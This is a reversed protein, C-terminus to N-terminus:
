ILTVLQSTLNIKDLLHSLSVAEGRSDDISKISYIVSDENFNTKFLLKKPEINVDILQKHIHNEELYKNYCVLCLSFIYEVKLEKGNYDKLVQEIENAFEAIELKRLEIKNYLVPKYQKVYIFTLLVTPLVFNNKEFQTLILRTYAFLKEQERLSLQKTDIILSAYKKFYEHDRKLQDYKLRNEHRFFEDLNFYEYLYDVFEKVSPSPIQYEIDIFRRLYNASDISESGYFGKIANCLQEKDISLVFVIGPVSFFHKVCELVQVAYDPKCRDLEDIIFILPKGNCEEQIYKGLEIKFADLSQKKDAYKIVEEEFLQTAEKTITNVADKIIETNIYKEALSQILIPFLNKSLTVSNKLVKKFTSTADKPNINKLEALLAVMPESDYDNEWANFYITKFDKYNLKQRWMKVFTTKGAGWENNIALVFGDAYNYVIQTLVDAYQERNLKCNLFPNNIDIELEHHKLKM